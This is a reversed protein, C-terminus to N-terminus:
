EAKCLEGQVKCQYIIDGMEDTRYIKVGNQLLRDIVEPAPHGYSNNKGVSVIAEEPKVAKVFEVSTSYKSGHHAVKLVRSDQALKDGTLELEQKAPLDGTFLFSDKGWNLRIVISYQNTSSSGPSEISFFPYLVEAEAGNPFKITVNKVAEINEANEQNVAEKWAKFTQSDSGARTELVAGANYNKLVDILGGIHDQDPHTAAVMEISRDWFPVYQGLKELVLKGNKGGDVLIQNQGQSILAADGQGVDFFIIKLNDNNKAYFIIGALIFALALLLFLTTYIVKRNPM